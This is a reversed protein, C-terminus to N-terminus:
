SAMKEPEGGTTTFIITGELDTRYIPINLKEYRSLISGHPHGYDNDKGCSIVAHDPSVAKLFKESSSTDSGHHGVKLLDCDLEGSRGFKEIMDAEVETEADGTFLATTEGYQARLTVSYNNKNDGYSDKVPSLLKCNLEGVTFEYGATAEIVPIKQEDIEKMMNKYVNTNATCDPLIVHKVRYDQLVMEAGGIHDEHPHTFIAYEIERVGVKKLYANLQEKSAREGADILIDGSATRILIADAQGVDIFHFQVEDGSVPDVKAEQYVVKGLFVGIITLILALITIAIRKYIRKKRRTTM